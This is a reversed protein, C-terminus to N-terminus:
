PTIQRYSTVRQFTLGDEVLVPPGSAPIYAILTGCEYLFTNATTSGRMGVGAANSPYSASATNTTYLAPSTTLTIDTETGNDMIKAAVSATDVKAWIWASRAVLTAGSLDVDGVSAAELTYNEQDGASTTDIVDSSESLARENVLPARGTGYGSGIGNTSDFNNQAGNSVSRKATVLFNAAGGGPDTNSGDDDAYVSGFWLDLTSTLILGVSLLGAQGANELTAGNTVSIVEAGNKFLKVTYVTTSTINATVTLRTLTTASLSGGTGLATSGSVLKLTGDSQVYAALKYSLTGFHGEMLDLDAAPLASLYLPASFRATNVLSSLAGDRQLYATNGSTSCKISRPGAIPHATDSTVTGAGITGSWFKLDFTANSGSELFLVSM